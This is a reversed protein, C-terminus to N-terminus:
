LRGRRRVNSKSLSTGSFDPATGAHHVPRMVKWKRTSAAGSRRQQLRVAPAHRPAPVPPAQQHRESGEGPAGLSRGHALVWLHGAPDVRAGAAHGAGVDGASGARSPAHRHRRVLGHLSRMPLRHAAGPTDDLLKDVVVVEAPHDSQGVSELGVAMPLHVGVQRPEGPPQTRRPQGQWPQDDGLVVRRRPPMQVQRHWCRRCQRNQGFQPCLTVDVPRVQLLRGGLTRQGAQAAVEGLAEVGGGGTGAPVDGGGAKPGQVV